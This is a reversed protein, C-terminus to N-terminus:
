RGRPPLPTGSTPLCEVVNTTVEMGDIEGVDVEAGNGDELAEGVCDRLLIAFDADFQVRQDLFQVGFQDFGRLAEASGHLFGVGLVGRFRFLALVDASLRDLLRLAQGM